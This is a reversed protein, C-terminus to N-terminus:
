VNRSDNWWPRSEPKLSQVVSYKQRLVATRRRNIELDCLVELKIM